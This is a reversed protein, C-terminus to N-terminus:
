RSSSRPAHHRERDYNHSTAELKPDAGRAAPPPPPRATTAGVAGNNLTERGPDTMEKHKADNPSDEPKNQPKDSKISSDVDRSVVRAYSRDMSPRTHMDDDRYELSDRARREATPPPPLMRSDDMRRPNRGAFLLDNSMTGGLFLLSIFYNVKMLTDHILDSTELRCEIIQHYDLIPIERLIIMVLIEQDLILDDTILLSM